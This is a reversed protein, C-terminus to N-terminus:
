SLLSDGNPPIGTVGTSYCSPFLVAVTVGPKCGRRTRAKRDSFLHPRLYFTTKFYLSKLHLVYFLTMSLCDYFLPFDKLKLHLSQSFYKCNSHLCTFVCIEYQRWNSYYVACCVQTPQYNLISVSYVQKEVSQVNLVSCENKVRVTENRGTAHMLLLHYFSCPLVHLLVHVCRYDQWQIICNFFIVNLCEKAAGHQWSCALKRVLGCSVWCLVPCWLFLCTDLKVFSGQLVSNQISLILKPYLM